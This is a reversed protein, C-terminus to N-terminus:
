HKSVTPQAGPLADPRYFKLSSTNTHNETQLSTCITQMHDLQHWQWGLVGDARAENLDLSAKSKQYWSVWTTMSFLCNFPHLLLLVTYSLEFSVKWGFFLKVRGSSLVGVQSLQVSLCVSLCLCLAMALVASAYASSKSCRGGRSADRRGMYDSM